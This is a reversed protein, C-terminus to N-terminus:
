IAGGDFHSGEGKPLPHGAGANEGATSPRTLPRKGKV